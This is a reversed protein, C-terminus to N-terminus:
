FQLRIVIQGSRPAPFTGGVSNSSVATYNMYGFGGTLRGLNDRTPPNSPSGTSPDSVVENRNFINFFEARVALFVGEKHLPFRKGISMSEVPRRKGRLDSYYVTGTGFVGAAQDTWAAPNLIIDQTPDIKGNIDKQYLPVGPVRFQRTAYGPLYTGLSNNSSPAALLPGSQYQLVSGINWGALVASAVRNHKLFGVPQTMYNFSMTLLHPRDNPDLSKFTSRKTLDGNGSYSNLTKSFAYALTADLGHSMRKTVKVQLADYWSSGLPAWSSGVGSYQPFPKLSQLVTGSDPFNAYPKVFGRAVATASTITSTLLTRDAANTIDLGLSKLYDPSFSNYNIMGGGAVLWVAHNGVFAAETFLDKTIERQLSVTYQNIRPPRGGNPDVNSPSGQVAAGPTVLLGPNYSAAYLASHDYVLPNSLSGVPVGSQPAVFNVTNYGMGQSNGAGIYNFAYTGSYTIGWGARLVTKPNFQYAGSLRPAIAYPYTPVLNCNCRGAGSGEYLVGGLRGNANPNAVDMRFTSTRHWLERMPQELDYRLGYDLTFKRTVKWTDQIFFGWATKRYQPDTTNGVSGSDYLGLLFTAFSNGIATGSPLTQGYLNQATVGSGFGLSPSLGIDSKNTFTELKWEAGTKYTHSGHVWTLQAVGTPKASVYLGRNTPGLTMTMGGYTDSGLAGIRPFGTGPAGQLGLQGASDFDTSVPPSTDPNHYYLIGAGVHLLLTPALTQDLNFRVTQSRITQDRAVSLVPPMGDQGNLKDTAEMSWYGSLRSNPSLSHDIKVSPIQQLKWFPGALAINNVLSATQAKPLLALIKASVPNIRSQPIINNPFVDRVLRGASDVVTTNPDYIANQMIPRGAFDTGLNRGTLMASLDGRLFADTPMTHIGNYLTERDRYRELNFFFFTRNKGQYVKPIYVPGGFSVGYDYLKKSPRVHGGNGNDTFPIGAGLAENTAYVYASGHYQNTGSRSTFNFLGGAVQGFEAAFNSTQLTFEQIAEVSPQLEDSARPDISNTSEQGEFIIRYSYQPMGNVSVTNWGTINAGPTLQSFSLPNRIAGAGIGFNIPLSNIKEGSVTTSVEANETKLLSTQESVEIQQTAQGVQLTVDLRTTIAVQVRVNTQELRSFGNAEVTMKYTGSPLSPVTYNGTNTSVTQYRLDTDANTLTIQAGPVVAGSPDVV